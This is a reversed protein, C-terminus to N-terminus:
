GQVLKRNAELAYPSDNFENTIRRWNREAEEMNGELEHARALMVLVTPLPLVRANPDEVQTELEAIVQETEGASIRLNYESFEAVLGLINDEYDDSFERFAELAEATRGERAEYGALYLKAVEAADTSGYEAIVLGFKERAAADREAETPYTEEGTGGATEGVEASATEIAEALLVQADDEVSGRWITFAAIGVVLLALVSVGIILARRHDSAVQYAHGIEDLFKDHKIDHRTKRDM